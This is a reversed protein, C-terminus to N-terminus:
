PSRRSVRLLYKRLVWGYHTGPATSDHYEIKVWKGVEDLLEVVQGPALTAIRRSGSRGADRVIAERERVVYEIKQPQESQQQHKLVGELLQQLVDLRFTLRRETEAVRTTLRAETQEADRKALEYYLHAILFGIIISAILEPISVKHTRRPELSPADRETNAEDSTLIGLEELRGAAGESGLLEAIRAIGNGSIATAGISAALSELTNGGLLDRIAAVSGLANEFSRLTNRVSDGYPDSIPQLLESYDFPVLTKLYKATAEQQDALHRALNATSAGLYDSLNAAPAILAKLQKQFRGERDLYDAIPSRDAPFLVDFQEQATRYPRMIEELRNAERLADQLISDM